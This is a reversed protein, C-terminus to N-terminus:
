VFVYVTIDIDIDIYIYIFCILSTLPVKKIHGQILRTTFSSNSLTHTDFLMM